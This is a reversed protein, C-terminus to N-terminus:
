NIYSENTLSRFSIIFSTIKFYKHKVLGDLTVLHSILEHEVFKLHPFNFKLAIKRRSYIIEM